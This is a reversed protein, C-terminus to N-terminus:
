HFIRPTINKIRESLAEVTCDTSFSLRRPPDLRMYWHGFGPDEGVRVLGIKESFRKSEDTRAEAWVSHYSQGPYYYDIHFKTLWTAVGRRRFVPDVETHALCISNDERFLSTAHGVEKVRELESDIWEVLDERPFSGGCDESSHACRYLWYDVQCESFYHKFLILDSRLVVRLYKEERGRFEEQYEEYAPGSGNTFSELLLDGRKCISAHPISELLGVIRRVYSDVIGLEDLKETLNRVYDLCRGATGKAERIMLVRTEVPVDGIYTKRDKRNVLVTAKVRKNGAVVDLPEEIFSPGEREKLAEVAHPVEDESVEFLTGVCEGGEELGLTPGPLIRTGWRKWSGKNFERHYGKLIAGDTREEFRFPVEDWMLSGYVFIWPM